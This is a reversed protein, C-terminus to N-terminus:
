KYIKGWKTETKKSPVEKETAKITEWTYWSSQESRDSCPVVFQNSNNWGKLWLTQNIKIFGWKRSDYLNNQRGLSCFSIQCASLIGCLSSYILLDWLCKFKLLLKSISYRTREIFSYQLTFKDKSILVLLSLASTEVLFFAKHNLFLLQVYYIFTKKSNQILLSLLKFFCILFM